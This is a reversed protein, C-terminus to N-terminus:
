KQAASLYIIEMPLLNKQLAKGMGKRAGTIVVNMVTTKQITFKCIVHKVFRFRFEFKFDVNISVLGDFVLM